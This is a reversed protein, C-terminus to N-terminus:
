ANLPKWERGFQASAEELLKEVRAIREAVDMTPQGIEYAADIGARRLAAEDADLIGTFAVVEIGQKKALRAVGVPTKGSLSQADLRGEGTIVLDAGVFTDALGCAEAVLEVGSGLRAGAFAILGAGLGGAAGAGPIDLVSINLDHEIIAAFHELAKDLTEVLVADATEGTLRIRACYAGSYPALSSDPLKALTSFHPFDMQDPTATDTQSDWESNDGQEFNSHFVFPYAM